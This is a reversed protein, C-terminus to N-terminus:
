FRVRDGVFIEAIPTPLEPYLFAGIYTLPAPCTCDSYRFFQVYEFDKRLERSECTLNKMWLDQM